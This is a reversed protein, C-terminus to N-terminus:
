SLHLNAQPKSHCAALGVDGSVFGEICRFTEVKFKHWVFRHLLGLDPCRFFKMPCGNDGVSTSCTASWVEHDGAVGDRCLCMFGRFGMDWHRWLGVVRISRDQRPKFLCIVPRPSDVLSYAPTKGRTNQVVGLQVM